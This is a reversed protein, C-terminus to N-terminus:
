FPIDEDNMKAGMGNLSTQYGYEKAPTKIPKTDRDGLDAFSVNTNISSAVESGGGQSIPLLAKDARMATRGGELGTIQEFLGEMPSKGYADVYWSTRVDFRFTVTDPRGFVHQKKAKKISFTVFNSKPDVHYESRFMTTIVDCKNNWMAGGSLDYATPMRPTKDRGRSDRPHAVINCYLDHNQALRKFKKLTKSLYLDEREMIQHDLQNWPDILFGDIGKKISLERVKSLIWEPSQDTDQEAKQDEEPYVFYFHDNIFRECAKFREVGIYNSYNKNFSLGSFTRIVDKYFEKAPAHEPSFVAWKAGTKASMLIMLFKIIESKGHNPPGTWCYLFTRVWSFCKEIEKFYCEHGREEYDDDQMEELISDMVDGSFFHVDTFGTHQAKEFCRRLADPGHKTLVENPDKCGEPYSVIFCSDKGFRNILTEELYKGPADNDVAIFFRKKNTLFEGCEDLCKLKGGMERGPESTGKDVSVAFDLGISKWSLADIEGESIIVDETEKISDVGYLMPRCNPIQRMKRSNAERIKGSVPEGNLYYMFVIWGNSDEVIKERDIVEDTIGRLNLWDRNPQSLEKYTNKPLDYNIKQTHANSPSQFQKRSVSQNTSGGFGEDYIDAIQGNKEIWDDSNGRGHYGCHHCKFDGTKVNFWLCRASRNQRKRKASCKPCTSRGKNDNGFKSLDIGLLELSRTRLEIM